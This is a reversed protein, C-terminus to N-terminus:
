GPLTVKRTSVSPIRLFDFLESLLRPTQDALWAEVAAAEGPM